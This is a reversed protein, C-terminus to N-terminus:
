WNRSAFSGNWGIDKRTEEPLSELIRATQRARYQRRLQQPLAYVKSVINMKKRWKDASRSM